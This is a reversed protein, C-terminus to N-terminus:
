ASSLFTHIERFIRDENILAANEAYLSAGIDGLGGISKTRFGFSLNQDSLGSLVSSMIGSDSPSEEIIVLNKTVALSESLYQADFPSLFEYIKVDLFIEVEKAFKSLSKIVLQAANGYTVVTASPEIKRPSIHIPELNKQPFAAFYPNPLVELSKQSYLDKNEILITPNGTNLLNKILEQNVGFPSVAFVTVNSIGLFLGEYNQSHTPGYGRRGGMPTRVLLPLEIPKGFVSILKSAQQRIQDIILTSFDGFMIEVITKDGALARGIGFGTMGQESIPFNKVQDPFKESLDESVGFAGSYKFEMGDPLTEIDEGVFLVEPDLLSNILSENLQKKIASNTLIPLRNIIASNTLLNKHLNQATRTKCDNKELIKEFLLETEKQIVHWYENLEKSNNLEINLLDQLHLENVFEKPRNDDGKSHSSLRSTKVHLVAPLNANRVFNISDEINSILNDLSKDDSYFYNIGFGKLRQDISGALFQNQPTTQAIGNDELVFLIPLELLLSINITEYVVGQGLTGDGLIAISLGTKTSSSFGCAVPALGGQIGNTIIQSASLHQSGGLGQSVAGEKGFIECALGEFDQTLSLYYGHARHTGFVKDKSTMFKSLIVPTLEQGICTHVTGRIKGKGFYNILAKEFARIRLSSKIISNKDLQSSDFM